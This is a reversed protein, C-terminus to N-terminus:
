FGSDAHLGEVSDEKVAEWRSVALVNGLCVNGAFPSCVDSTERSNRGLLTSFLGLCLLGSAPRNM